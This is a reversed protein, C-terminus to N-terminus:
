RHGGCMRLVCESVRQKHLTNKVVAWHLAACHSATGPATGRLAACSQASGWARSVLKVYFSAFAGAGMAVAVLILVLTRAEAVQVRVAARGVACLPAPDTHPNPAVRDTALDTTDASIAQQALAGAM